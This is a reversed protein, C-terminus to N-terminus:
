PTNEESTTGLAPNKTWKYGVHRITQLCAAYTHGLKARIRRVHIDVTRSGGYYDYGWVRALLQTRSFAEGPHCALFKLLEFEQYTLDIAQGRIIVEYGKLDLVLDGVCVKDEEDRESGMVRRSARTCLEQARVPRLVFDALGEVRRIRRLHNVGVVALIDVDQRLPLSLIPALFSSPDEEDPVEVIVVDPRDEAISATDAGPRRVLVEWSDERLATVTASERPPSSTIVVATDM